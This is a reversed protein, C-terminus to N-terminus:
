RPEEYLEVKNGDPDAVYITRGYIGDHLEDFFKVGGEKLRAALAEVGSVRFAMHDIQAPKGPGGTTLAIGQLFPVFPRGDALPKAKRETFGLLGAYFRKSADIDAVQLLMHAFALIRPARPAEDAKEPENDIGLRGARGWSDKPVDQIIVHLHDPGCDGHQVMADTIAAVLRRKQNVTRGTWLQVTVVPM